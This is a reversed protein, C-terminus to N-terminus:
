RLRRQRREQGPRRLEFGKAQPLTEWPGAEQLIKTEAGVVGAGTRQRYIGTGPPLALPHLWHDPRAVAWVPLGQRKVAVATCADVCHSWPIDRRLSIEFDGRRFAMTGTGPVHARADASLGSRAASIWRDRAYDDFPETMISAHVCVVSRPHRRLAATMREAYNPPYIIDDDVTLAIDDDSWYPPAKWEDRDWHLLKAEASRWGAEQSLTAHAVKEHHLCRPIATYGNLYVCLVDVQPLLSSVAQELLKERSSLSAM